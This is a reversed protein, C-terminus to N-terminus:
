VEQSRIIVKYAVDESDSLGDNEAIMTIIVSGMKDTTGYLIHHEVFDILSSTPEGQGCFNRRYYQNDTVHELVYNSYFSEDAIVFPNDYCSEEKFWSVIKIMQKHAPQYEKMVQDIVGNM